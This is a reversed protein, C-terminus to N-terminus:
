LAQFSCRPFIIDHPEMITYAELLVRAGNNSIPIDILTPKQTKFAAQVNMKVRWLIGPLVM